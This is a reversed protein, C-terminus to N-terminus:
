SPPVSARDCRAPPPVDARNDTGSAQSGTVAPESRCLAVGPDQENAGTVVASFVLFLLYAALLLALGGVVRFRVVAVWRPPLERGVLAPRIYRETM